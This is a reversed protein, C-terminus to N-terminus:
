LNSRASDNEPCRAAPDYKVPLTHLQGSSPKHSRLRPLGDVDLWVEGNECNIISLPNTREAFLDTDAEQSARLVAAVEGM